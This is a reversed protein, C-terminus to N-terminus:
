QFLTNQPIFAMKGILVSSSGDGFHQAVPRFADVKPMQAPVVVDLGQCVMSGFANIGVGHLKHMASFLGLNVYTTQTSDLPQTCAKKWLSLNIGGSKNGGKNQAPLCVAASLLAAVLIIKKM